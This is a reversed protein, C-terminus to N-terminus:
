VPRFDTISTASVYRKAKCHYPFDWTPTTGRNEPNKQIAFLFNKAVSGLSGWGGRLALEGYGETFLIHGPKIRLRNAKATQGRVVLHIGNKIEEIQM